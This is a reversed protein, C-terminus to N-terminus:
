PFIDAYSFDPAWWSISMYGGLVLKEASTKQKNTKLHFETTMINPQPCLPPFNHNKLSWSKMGLLLLDDASFLCKLRWVQYALVRCPDLVFCECRSWETNRACMWTWLHHTVLTKAIGTSNYSSSDNKQAKTFTFHMAGDQCGWSGFTNVGANEQGKNRM